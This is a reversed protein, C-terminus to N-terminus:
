VTTDPEKVCAACWRRSQRHHITLATQVKHPFYFEYMCRITTELAELPLSGVLSRSLNRQSPSQSVSTTAPLNPCSQSVRTSTMSMLRTGPSSAPVLVSISHIRFPRAKSSILANGFQEMDTITWDVFDSNVCM